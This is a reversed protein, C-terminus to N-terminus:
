LLFIEVKQRHADRKTRAKQLQENCHNRLQTLLFQAHEEYVGPTTSLETEAVLCNTFSWFCQSLVTM